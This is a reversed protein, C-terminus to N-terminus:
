KLDVFVEKGIGRLWEVISPGVATFLELGVKYFGCQGGLADVLVRAEQASAVDLAVIPTVPRAVPTSAAVAATLEAM